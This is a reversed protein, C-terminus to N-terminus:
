RCVKDFKSTKCKGGIHFLWAPSWCHLSDARPLWLSWSHITAPVRVDWATRLSSCPLLWSHSAQLPLERSDRHPLLEAAWCAWLQTPVLGTGPFVEMAPGLIPQWVESFPQWGSKLLLTIKKARDSGRWPENKICIIGKRKPRFPQLLGSSGRLILNSQMMGYTGLKWILRM